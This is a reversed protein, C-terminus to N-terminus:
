RAELRIRPDPPIARKIQEYLPGAGDLKLTAQWNMGQWNM